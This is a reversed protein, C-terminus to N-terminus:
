CTLEAERFWGTRVTKNVDAYRVWAVKVRDEDIFWGKVIGVVQTLKITVESEIECPFEVKLMTKEKNTDINM